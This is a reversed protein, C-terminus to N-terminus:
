EQCAEFQDALTELEAPGIRPGFIWPLVIRPQPLARALTEIMNEHEERRVVSSVARDLAARSVRAALSVAPLAEERM